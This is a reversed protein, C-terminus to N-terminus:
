RLHRGCGASRRSARARSGTLNRLWHCYDRLRAVHEEAALGSIDGPRAGYKKKWKARLSPQGFMEAEIIIILNANGIMSQLRMANAYAIVAMDILVLESATTANTQEILGRRIALLMGAPFISNLSYSPLADDRGRSIGRGNAPTAASLEPPAIL